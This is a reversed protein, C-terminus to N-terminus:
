KLIVVAIIRIYIVYAALGLAMFNLIVHTYEQRWLHFIIEGLAIFITVVAALANFLDHPIGILEAPIFGIAALIAVSGILRRFAPQIAWVYDDMGNQTPEDPPSWMIYGYRLWFIALLIQVCWLLVTMM